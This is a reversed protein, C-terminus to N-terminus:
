EHPLPHEEEEESLPALVVSPVLETSVWHEKEKGM